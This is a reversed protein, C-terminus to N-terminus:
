RKYEEETVQELWVINGMQMNPIIALHTRTGDPTAGHWHAVGPPCKSLIQKPKGKKQYYADGDTIHHHWNTRAGPEFTVAGMQVKFDTQTLMM